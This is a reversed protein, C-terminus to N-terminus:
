EKVSALMAKDDLTYSSSLFYASLLRGASNTARIVPTMLPPGMAESDISRWISGLAYITYKRQEIPYRAAFALLEWLTAPRYGLEALQIIGDNCYSEGSLVPLLEIVVNEVTSKDKPCNPFNYDSIGVTDFKAAALFTELSQRHDVTIPFGQPKSVVKSDVSMVKLSVKVTSKNSPM